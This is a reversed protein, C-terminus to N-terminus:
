FNGLKISQYLPSYESQSPDYLHTFANREVLYKVIDIQDQKIALYLPGAGHKSTLNIDAGARYLMDLIKMNGRYAAIGVATVGNKKTYDLPYKIDLLAQVVKQNEKKVAIHLANSGNQNRSLMDIGKQMLYRLIQLIIISFRVDVHGYFAAVWFANVGYADTKNIRTNPNTVIMAVM